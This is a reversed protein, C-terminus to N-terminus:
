RPKTVTVAAGGESFMVDLADGARLGASSIRVRGETDRVISYGRSLVRTPDLHSLATRLRAVRHEHARLPVARKLRPALVRLRADRAQRDRQAALRMRRALQAIRERNRELREAPTLLRRAAHDLRQVGREV